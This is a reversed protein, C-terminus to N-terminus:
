YFICLKKIMQLNGKGSSSTHNRDCPPTHHRLLATLDIDKAIRNEGRKQSEWHYTGDRTSQFQQIPISHIKVAMVSYDRVLLVTVGGFVNPLLNDIANTEQFSLWKRRPLNGHDSRHIFQLISHHCSVCCTLTSSYTMHLAFMKTIPATSAHLQLKTSCYTRVYLLNKWNWQEFNLIQDM